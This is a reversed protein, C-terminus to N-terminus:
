ARRPLSWRRPPRVAAAALELAVILEYIVSLGAAILEPLECVPLGGEKILVLVLADGGLNISTIDHNVHIEVVGVVVHGLEIALGTRRQRRGLARDVELSVVLLSFLSFIQPDM